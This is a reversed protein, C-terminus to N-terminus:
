AGKVPPTSKASEVVNLIDEILWRRQDEPTPVYDHGGRAGKRAITLVKRRLAQWLNAQFIERSLEDRLYLRIFGALTPVDAFSLGREKLIAQLRRNLYRPMKPFM